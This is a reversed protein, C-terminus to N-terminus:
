EIVSDYDYNGSCSDEREAKEDVRQYFCWIFVNGELGNCCQFRWRMCFFVQTYESDRTFLISILNNTVKGRIM